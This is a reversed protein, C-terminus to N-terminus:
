RQRQPVNAPRRLNPYRAALGPPVQTCCEVVDDLTLRQDFAKIRWSEAPFTDFVEPAPALWLMAHAASAFSRSGAYGLREDITIGRLAQRDHASVARLVDLLPSRPKIGHPLRGTTVFRVYDSPRTALRRLQAHSVM